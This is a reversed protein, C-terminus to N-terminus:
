RRRFRAKLALIAIALALTFSNFVIVPASGIRVGYLIWLAIGVSMLSFAHASVDDASRCRWIRVVQPLLALTTLSGAATGLLTTQDV